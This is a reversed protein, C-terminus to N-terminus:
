RACRRKCPVEPCALRNGSDGPWTMMPMNIVVGPRALTLEGNSEATRVEASSKLLRANQSNRWTVQVLARLPRYGLTGPPNDFVDAQFGLPGSGSVGNAFVYVNALTSSPAQALEPVLLVPSGMMRTLMDGVSADSAETHIFRISQSESFGEVLPSMGGMSVNGSTGSSGGACATLVTAAGMAIIGKHM